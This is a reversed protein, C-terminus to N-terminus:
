SPRFATRLRSMLGGRAAKGDAASAAELSEVDVMSAALRRIEQSVRHDARSDVLPTGENISHLVTPFDEPIQYDIEHGLNEAIDRTPIGSYTNYRNLVLQIRDHPYGLLSAIELFQTTDKITTMEMTLLLLLRESADMVTLMTDDFGPRTDVVVYDAMQTLVSLTARVHDASITEAEQPRPPSLLVRVGSTHTFLVDDILESDLSHAQDVIDVITKADGSNMLVGVDGFHMSTDFLIVEKQTLRRIAVALNVAVFTRGVGGKSSVVSLVKTDASSRRAIPATGDAVELIPAQVAPRALRSVHRVAEVLEDLSFPKSLFERAGALMARRLVDPENQVSMMIVATSPVRTTIEMTAEIGDMDPMNIDMLVVDPTLQVALDIGEQGREAKGVVEVDPEFRLLKEVNDRSEAVDDVILIRIRGASLRDRRTTKKTAMKLPRIM